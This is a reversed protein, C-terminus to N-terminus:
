RPAPIEWLSCTTWTCPAFAACSTTVPIGCASCGTWSTSDLEVALLKDTVLRAFQSPADALGYINGTVRWLKAAQFIGARKSLEDTPGIMYLEGARTSGTSSRGGQLFATSIDAAVLQWGLHLNSAAVQLLIHLSVRLSVPSHRSLLELDPDRYGRLVVRCKARVDSLQTSVGHQDALVSGSAKDRCAARYRDPNQVCPGPSNRRGPPPLSCNWLILSVPLERQAAKKEARSATPTRMLLTTLSSAALNGSPEALMTRARVTGLQQLFWISIREKLYLHTTCHSLMCEPWSLHHVKM